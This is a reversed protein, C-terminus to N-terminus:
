ELLLFLVNKLVISKLKLDTDYKLILLTISANIKRTFHSIRKRWLLLFMFLLLLLFWREGFFLYIM